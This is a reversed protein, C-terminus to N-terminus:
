HRRIELPGWTAGNYGTGPVYPYPGFNRGRGYPIVPSYGGVNWGGYVFGPSDVTVQLGNQNTAQYAQQAQANAQAAQAQAQQAQARAQQAALEAQERQQKEAEFKQKWADAYAALDFGFDKQDSESLNKFDLFAVGDDHIIQIGTADKSRVSINKYVDGSVTKLDRAFSSGGLLLIAALLSYFVRKMLTFSYCFRLGRSPFHPRVPQDSGRASRHLSLFWSIPSISSFLLIFKNVLNPLCSRENIEGIEHNRGM